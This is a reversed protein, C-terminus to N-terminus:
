AELEAYIGDPDTTQKWAQLKGADPGELLMSVIQLEGNRIAVHREDNPFKENYKPLAKDVRKWDLMAEM